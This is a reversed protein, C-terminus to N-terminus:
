FFPNSKLESGITTEPGHGPYVTTDPALTLLRRKISSLLQEGDGGPIDSRGIGMCFLADGSFLLGRSRCYFCVGGQTHGPTEIVALGTNFVKDGDNLTIDAKPLSAMLKALAQDPFLLGLNALDRQNVEAAQDGLHDADKSHIAVPLSIGQRSYHDKLKGVSAIHDLHGHTLAIGIPRLEGKELENLIKADDGGPDIVVCENKDDNESYLYCNTGFMGVVIQRVM